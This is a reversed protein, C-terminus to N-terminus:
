TTEEVVLVVMWALAIGGACFFLVAFNQIGSSELAWGAALYAIPAIGASVAEMMTFLRGHMTAPATQQIRTTITLYVGAAAAGVVFAGIWIVWLVPALAIVFFVSGFAGYALFQIPATLVLDISRRSLLVFALIGGALSIAFVIGLMRESTGIHDILIFPLSLLLVPSLLFMGGQSVIGIRIERDTRLFRFAEVANRGISTVPPVRRPSTPVRIAGEQLASALFTVGNLILVLPAGILAYLVGGLANGTMNLIQSGGARMSNAQALSRSPVIEPILTQVAPVFFAHGLGAIGSLMLIPLISRNWPGFVMVGVGIMAVGRVADAVILITKRNWRDILAGSIPSLLFGPILALFQFVGLVLPSETIEKLFLIMAVLYVANGFSSVANGFVLLSLNKRWGSWSSEVHNM